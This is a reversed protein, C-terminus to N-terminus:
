AVEAPIVTMLIVQCGLRRDAAPLPSAADIRGARVGAHPCDYGAVPFYMDVKGPTTWDTLRLLRNSYLDLGRRAARDRVDIATPLRQSALLQPNLAPMNSTCPARGARISLLIGPVRLNCQVCTCDTEVRLGSHM